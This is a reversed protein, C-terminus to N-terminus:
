GGGTGRRVEAGPGGTRPVPGSGPLPPPASLSGPSPSVRTRPPARGVGGRPMWSECARYKGPTETKELTIEAAHCQGNKRSSPVSALQGLARPGSRNPPHM